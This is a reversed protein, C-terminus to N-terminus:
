LVSPILKKRSNKSSHYFSSGSVSGYRQSISGSASGPPGFVYPDQPDPDAVSTTNSNNMTSKGVNFSSIPEIGTESKSATTTFGVFHRVLYNISIIM